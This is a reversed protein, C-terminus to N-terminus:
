FMCFEKEPQQKVHTHFDRVNITTRLACTNSLFSSFYTRTNPGLLSSTVPPQLFNWWSSSWTKMGLSINRTPDCGPLRTSPPLPHLCTTQMPCFLSAYLIYTLFGSPFLGSHRGPRWNYYIVNFYIMLFVPHSLRPKPYQPEPYPCTTLEQSSTLSGEPEYLALFTNTLQLM